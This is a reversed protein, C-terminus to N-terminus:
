KQVKFGEVMAHELNIEWLDTRGILLLRKGKVVAALFTLSAPLDMRFPRDVGHLLFEMRHSIIRVRMWPETGPKGWRERSSHFKDFERLNVYLANSEETRAKDLNLLSWGRQNEKEWRVRVFDQPGEEVALVVAEDPAHVPFKLYSVPGSGSTSAPLLHSGDQVMYLIKKPNSRSDAFLVSPAKGDPTKLSEGPYIGRSNLTQDLRLIGAETPVLYYIGEEDKASIPLGLVIDDTFRGAEMKRKASGGSSRSATISLGGSGATDDEEKMYRWFGDSGLYHPFRATQGSVGKEGLRMFGQGATRLGLIREEDVGIGTRVEKVVGPNVGPIKPRQFDALRFKSGITRYWGDFDTGIEVIQVRKVQDRNENENQSQEQFFAVSNISDFAFRGGVMRIEEGRLRGRLKGPQSDNCGEKAWEWFGSEQVSVYQRGVFPDQDSDQLRVFVDRDKKGTLTGRFVLESSSECRITVIDGNVETDTIRLIKKDSMPEPIVLFDDPDLVVEGLRGPLRSFSVLGSPTAAWLRGDIFLIGSWRDIGVCGGEWALPRWRGDLTRREFVFPESGPSISYRGPYSSLLRLRKRSVVPPRDVYELLGAVTEPDNIEQWAPSTGASPLYQWLRRQGNRGEVYLGSGATAKIFTIEHPVEIFRQPNLSQTDYNVTDKNLVMSGAPQRSIWGNHWLAFVYGDYVAIDKIRDHPFRGDRITIIQSSSKGNEDKYRGELRGNHEVFRWFPTEHRLRRTLRGSAPCRRFQGGPPKEICQGSSYATIVGATGADADIGVREVPALPEGGGGRLRYFEKIDGLGTKLDGSYVQLGARTGLYLDKEDKDVAMSTVVDFSFRNNWFGVTQWSDKGNIDKVRVEKKVRGSSERTLRLRPDAKPIKVLLRKQGTDVANTVRDFTKATTNWRYYSSGTYLVLDDRGGADIINRLHRTPMPQFRAAQLHPRPDPPDAKEFFAETMIYLSDTGKFNVADRLQDSTFGFGSSGAVTKFNYSNGTLLIRLVGQRLEWKWTGNDVLTRNIMPNLATSKWQSPGSRKWWSNGYQFYLRDAEPSYLRGQNPVAEFGSYGNVPHIGADSHVFLTLGADTHIYALGRKNQDWIFGRSAFANKNKIGKIRSEIGTRAIHESLTVDGFSVHHYQQSQPVPKGDPTYDGTDTIFRGHAAGVPRTWDVPQFRLAPDNLSLDERTHTWIGHSNAAYLRAPGLVLLAEIDEFLLKGDKIFEDPALNKVTTPTKIEFTKTDRKWRLWGADLPPPLTNIKIAGYQALMELGSPRRAMLEHGSGEELRTIPDYAQRGGSLRRVRQELKDWHDALLPSSPFTEGKLEEVKSVLVPVKGPFVRSEFTTGSERVVHTLLLLRDDGTRIWAREGDALIEGIDFRDGATGTLPIEQRLVRDLIRIGGTTEFLVWRDWEFAQKVEGPVLLFPREYAVEREKYNGAGPRKLHYLTSDPLLRWIAGSNDLATTEGSKLDYRAFSKPHFGQRHAVWWTRGGNGKCVIVGLDGPRYYLPSGFLGPVVVDKGWQRKGPYYYKIRDKFVFTWPGGGRMQVDVLERASHGLGASPEFVPKMGVGTVAAPDLPLQVSGLFFRGKKTKVTIIERDGQADKEIDIDSLVDDELLINLPIESWLRNQLDYRLLGRGTTFLLYGPPYSFRGFVRKLTHSLPEKGPPSLIEVDNGGMWESIAGDKRIFAMRNDEPEAVYAQVTRSKGQLTVPADSCGGPFQITDADVVTMEFDTRRQSVLVLRRGLAHLRGGRPLPDGRVEGYWTRAAPSYFRLGKDFSVALTGDPLAAADAIGGTRTDRGAYPRYFFCRANLSFPDDMPYRILYKNANQGKQRVTWIYHGDVFLHLVRGAPADLVQTGLTAIGGCLVLPQRGIIAAISVEGKGPLKWRDVVQRLDIDYCDLWGNGGLYLREDKAAADSLENDSIDFGRQGGIRSNFRGPVTFEMLLGERTSMLLQKKYQVVEKPPSRYFRKYRGWTRSERDYYRLGESTAIIVGDQYPAADLLPIDDMGGAKLGTLTEVIHSFRFVRGDDGGAILGIGRGNWDRVRSVPGPVLALQSASNFQGAEVSKLPLRYIRTDGGKGVVAYVFLDGSTVMQLDRRLLWEPLKSTLIEKYSRTVINHIVAKKDGTFLVNDGFAVASRFDKPNVATCNGAFVINMKDEKLSFLTGSRTLALVERGKGHQMKVIKEGGYGGPLSWTDCKKDAKRWPRRSRSMVGIGGRFGFYFERADEGPFPLVESVDGRFHREWSHLHADYSFVGASGATILRHDREWYGAFSLDELTLNPFIYSENMLIEPPRDPSQFRYLGLCNFGGSRCRGKALVWLNGAVDVDMDMVAGNVEPRAKLLPIEEPVQLSTLGAPGGIWFYGRSWAIHTVEVAPLTKFFSEQLQLWHRSKLHYIGIGDRRTGVVLWQGDGSIAAATLQGRGVPKGRSGTFVSDSKVMEWKGRSRRVLGRGATLGWLSDTEVCEGIRNSLPDTGCGSRLLILDPNSLHNWEQNGDKSFPAETSWLGTSPNYRHVTGGEQSLYLSGEPLHLVADLLPKEQLNDRINSLIRLDAVPRILPKDFIGFRHGLVVGILWWLIFLIILSFFLVFWVIDIRKRFPIKHSKLEAEGRRDQTRGLHHWIKKM